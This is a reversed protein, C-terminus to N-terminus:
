HEFDDLLNGIEFDIYKFKKLKKFLKNKNYLEIYKKDTPFQLKKEFSNIYKIIKSRYNGEISNIFAILGIIKDNQEYNGTMISKHIIARVKRKLKGNAKVEKTNINVGTIMKRSKPSLFRTKNKNLIFGEGQIIKEIIPYIKKLLTKDNSSFTMDDAYRTYTIDRKDCLGILRKDISMCVLNSLAPSCIGGQPLYGDYTCLNALTGSVIGNYGKRRL